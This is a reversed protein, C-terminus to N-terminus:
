NPNGPQAPPPGAIYTYLVKEEGREAILKDLQELVL